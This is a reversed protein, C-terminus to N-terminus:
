EQRMVGVISGTFVAGDVEFGPAAIPQFCLAPSDDTIPFQCLPLGTGAHIQFMAVLAVIAIISKSLNKFMFM